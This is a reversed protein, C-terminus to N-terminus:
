ARKLLMERFTKALSEGTNARKYGVGGGEGDGGGGGGRGVVAM